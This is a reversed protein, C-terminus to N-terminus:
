RSGYCKLQRQFQRLIRESKVSNRKSIASVAKGDVTSLLGLALGAVAGMIVLLSFMALLLGKTKNIDRSGRRGM